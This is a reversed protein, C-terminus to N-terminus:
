FSLVVGTYLFQRCSKDGGDYASGPQFAGYRITWALDSTLRWNCYVDWEWGLWADDNAATVDSIPGAARAKHYFFVKTGVEVRKLLEMGVGELPFFGAGLVYVHLNSLRPSFAIGLDRFGFGNFAYDTTGARNGGATATASVARDRDGSGWLYEFMVKPRTPCRFTYAVLADAAMACVSDQGNVVGNSYTKGWEGVVEVRYHLEPVFLTGRSGIGLYRTSYDYSQLADAPDPQTRDINNLMYVFPRHRDLGRYTLQFGWMCRKQHNYVRFSDDINNSSRLTKGLFAMFTWDRWGVDFRIMDLPISLVLATGIRAFQRGVKVRLDIPPPQGTQNKLLQGLDFQYWAREIKEDFEDGGRALSPNDGSNWDNWNLLGRVYGRHVGQVNASAWGRLQFRRLMRHRQGVADDYNFLAFSFWGGADVGIERAEPMQEDLKLRLQEEYVDSGSREQALAPSAAVAAAVMLVCWGYAHRVVFTSM